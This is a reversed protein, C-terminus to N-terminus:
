FVHKFAHDFPTWILIEFLKPILTMRNVCPLIPSYKKFQYFLVRRWAFSNKGLISMIAKEDFVNVFCLVTPTLTGLGTCRAHGGSDHSRRDSESQNELRQWNKECKKRKWNRPGFLVNWNLQHATHKWKNINNNRKQKSQVLHVGSFSFNSTCQVQNLVCAEYGTWCTQRQHLRLCIM